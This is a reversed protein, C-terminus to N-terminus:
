GTGLTPVLFPLPERKESLPSQVGLGSSRSGRSGYGVEEMDTQTSSRAADARANAVARALIERADVRAASLDSASAGFGGGAAAAAAAAAAALTRLPEGDSGASSGAKSGDPISATATPTETAARTSAERSASAQAPVKEARLRSVEQRLAAEVSSARQLIQQHQLHRRRVQDQLARLTSEVVGRQKLIVEGMVSALNSQLTAADKGKKEGLANVQKGVIELLVDVQAALSELVFVADPDRWQSGSM